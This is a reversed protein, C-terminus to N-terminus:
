SIIQYIQKMKCNFKTISNESISAMTKLANIAFQPYNKSGKLKMAVNVIPLKRHIM